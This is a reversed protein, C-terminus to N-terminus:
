ATLILAAAEVMTEARHNETIKSDPGRVDIRYHMVPLGDRMKGRDYWDVWVDVGRQPHLLTLSLVNRFMMAGVKPTPGRGRLYEMLELLKRAGAAHVPESAAAQERVRAFVDEEPIPCFFEM